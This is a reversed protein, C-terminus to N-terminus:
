RVKWKQTSTIIEQHLILVPFFDLVLTAHIAFDTQLV